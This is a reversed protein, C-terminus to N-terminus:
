MRRQRNRNLDEPIKRQTASNSIGSREFHVVEKMTLPLLNGTIDWVVRNIM